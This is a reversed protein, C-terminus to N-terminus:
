KYTDASISKDLQDHERGDEAFASRQPRAPGITAGKSKLEEVVVDTIGEVRRVDDWNSFPRSQVIRRARGPGLGVDEALEDETASNMDVNKADHVPVQM